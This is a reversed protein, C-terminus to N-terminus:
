FIIKCIYKSLNEFLNVLSINENHFVLRSCNSQDIWNTVQEFKNSINIENQNYRLHECIKCFDESMKPEEICYNNKWKFYSNYLTKDNSVIKLYESLHKPSSFNM